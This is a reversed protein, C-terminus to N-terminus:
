KKKVDINFRNELWTEIQDSLTDIGSWEVIIKDTRLQAWNITSIFIDPSDESWLVFWDGNYPGPETEKADMVHLSGVITSWDRKLWFRFLDVTMQDIELRFVWGQQEM